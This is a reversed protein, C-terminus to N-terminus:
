RVDDAGSNLDIAAHEGTTPQHGPLAISFSSGQGVTSEVQITGGHQEIISRVVALGLGNGQEGKTTYFPEFIRELQERSIGCGRDAIQVVVREDREGSSIAIRGKGKMADRSNIILNLLVQQIQNPDVKIRLRCEELDRRFRIDHFSAQNAVLGLTRDIIPGICTLQRDPQDQRSFDLLDRVIRRCRMTERIIVAADERAPDDEALDDHLEEAFTLIGTLPNNIEHAVGAALKGVAAHKESQVLDHQLRRSETVNNSVSCIGTPEGRYDTLLMRETILTHERGRLVLVETHNLHRRKRVLEADNTVITAAAEAPLLDEVTKGAFEEAGLRYFRQAAPNILQYRGALDKITILGHVSNFIQDFRRASVETERKLLVQETVERSTVVVSINGASDWIPNATVEYYYEGESRRSWGICSERQVVTLRKGTSMATIRPCSHDTCGGSKVNCVLDQCTQGIVEAAPIATVREFRQNVRQIQGEEDVVMVADPLSDLIKQLRRRDQRIEAELQTKTQLEDRLHQAVEDLDWFVRAMYHDMVRVNDPAAKYIEDRVQDIGTLEIVLELDPQTLAQELSTFTPWGQEKAFRLGPAGPDRDVVGLIELSLTALRQQVVLELVALGGQGAGVFVTKM